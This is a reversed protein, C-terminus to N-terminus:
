VRDLSLCTQRKRFCSVVRLITVVIAMLHVTKNNRQGLGTTTVIAQLKKNYNM